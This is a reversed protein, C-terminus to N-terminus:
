SPLAPSPARRRPATEAWRGVGWAYALLVPLWGLIARPRSSSIAQIVPTSPNILLTVRAAPPLASQLADLERSLSDTMDIMRQRAGPETPSVVEIDILPGPVSATWQGGSNRLRASSTDTWGEGYLTADPSVSRPEPVGGNVAVTLIAAVEIVSTQPDSLSQPKNQQVPALVLATTRAWYVRHPTSAWWAGAVFLLTTTTAVIVRGVLTM